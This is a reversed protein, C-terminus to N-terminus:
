YLSVKQKFQQFLVFHENNYNIEIHLELGNM